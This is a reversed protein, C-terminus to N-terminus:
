PRVPQCRAYGFEASASEATWGIGGKRLPSIPTLVLPAASAVHNYRVFHGRSASGMSQHWSIRILTIALCAGFDADSL